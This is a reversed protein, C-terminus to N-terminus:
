KTDGVLITALNDRCKHLLAIFKVVLEPDTSYHWDSAYIPGMTVILTTAGYEDAYFIHIDLLWHYIGFAKSNLDEHHLWVTDEFTIWFHPDSNVAAFADEFVSM